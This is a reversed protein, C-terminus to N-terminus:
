RCHQAEKFFQFGSGLYKTVIYVEVFRQTRGQVSPYKSPVRKRLEVGREKAKFM